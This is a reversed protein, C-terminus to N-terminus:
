EESLPFGSWDGQIGRQYLPILYIVCLPEAGRCAGHDLGYPSVKHQGQPVAVFGAAQTVAPARKATGERRDPGWGLALDPRPVSVWSQGSLPIQSPVSM